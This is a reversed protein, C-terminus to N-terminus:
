AVLWSTTPVVFFHSAADGDDGAPGIVGAEALFTSDVFGLLALFFSPSPPGTTESSFARNVGVVFPESLSMNGGLAEARPGCSVADVGVVGFGVAFGAPVATSEDEIDALVEVLVLAIM